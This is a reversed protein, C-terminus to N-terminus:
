CLHHRHAQQGRGYWRSKSSHYVSRGDCDVICVIINLPVAKHYTITSVHLMDIYYSTFIFFFLEIYLSILAIFSSTGTDFPLCNSTQM